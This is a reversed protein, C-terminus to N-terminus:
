SCPDPAQAGTRLAGALDRSRRLGQLAAELQRRWLVFSPEDAQFYHREKFELYVAGLILEGSRLPVLHGEAVDKRARWELPAVLASPPPLPEPTRATWPQLGDEELLEWTNRLTPMLALCRTPNRGARLHDLFPGVIPAEAVERQAAVLLDNLRLVEDHLAHLDRMRALVRQELDAQYGRVKELAAAHDLARDLVAEFEELRFPKQLFDYAGSKVALIAVEMSAYGTIVVCLTLPDLAKVAEILQFGSPGGPMNLDTVVVPFHHSKILELAVVADSADEVQYGDATLAEKLNHRLDDEDDVLLIPDPIM